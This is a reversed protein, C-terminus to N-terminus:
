PITAGRGIEDSDRRVDWAQLRPSVGSRHGRHEGRRHSLSPLPPPPKPPPLSLSPGASAENIDTQEMPWARAPQKAAAARGGETTGTTAAAPPAASEAQTSAEYEKVAETATALNEIREWTDDPSEYGEWRVRYEAVGRKTRKDIIRDVTFEDSSGEEDSSDTGLHEEESAPLTDDEWEEEESSDVIRPRKAAARRTPRPM